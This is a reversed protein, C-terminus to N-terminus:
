WLNGLWALAELQSGTTGERVGVLMDQRYVGISLEWGRSSSELVEPPLM